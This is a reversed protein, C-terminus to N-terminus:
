LTVRIKSTTISVPRIEVKLGLDNLRATTIEKVITRLNEVVMGFMTHNGNVHMHALQTDRQESMDILRIYAISQDELIAIGSFSITIGAGHIAVSNTDNIKLEFDFVRNGDKIQAEIFKELYEKFIDTQIQEDYKKAVNYALENDEEMTLTNTKLIEIRKDLQLDKLKKIDFSM